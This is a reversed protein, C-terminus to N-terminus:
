CSGLSQRHRSCPASFCHCVNTVTGQVYEVRRAQEPPRDARHGQLFHGREVLGRRQPCARNGQRHQGKIKKAELHSGRRSDGRGRQFLTESCLESTKFKPQGMM